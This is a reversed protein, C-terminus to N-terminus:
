PLAVDEAHVVFAHKLAQDATLRHRPNRTLCKRIFDKANKSPGKPLKYRLKRILMYTDNHSRGFFPPSGYLLLYVIVGISWMDAAKWIRLSRAEGNLVEPAVYYPSGANDKIEDDERERHLACGFDILKMLKHAKTNFVFNEPKLDRHTINKMHLHRVAELMQKALNAATKETFVSIEKVRDFLEGGECLYTGIYLFKEEEKSMVFEICNKHKIRKLINVESEYMRRQDKDLRGSKTDYKRLAKVAVMKGTAKEKAAYVSCSMGTGLTHYKTYTDWVSANGPPPIKSQAGCGM